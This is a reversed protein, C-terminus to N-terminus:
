FITVVIGRKRYTEFESLLCRMCMYFVEQELLLNKVKSKASINWPRM